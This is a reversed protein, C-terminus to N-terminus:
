KALGKLYDHILRHDWANVSPLCTDDLPRYAVKTRVGEHDFVEAATKPTVGSAVYHWRPHTIGCGSGCQYRYLQPARIDVKRMLAKLRWDGPANGTAMAEASRRRIIIGDTDTHIVKGAGHGYLGETLLRTRVRSTTEAAIHTTWRHPM